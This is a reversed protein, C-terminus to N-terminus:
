KMYLELWRMPLLCPVRFLTENDRVTFFVFFCEFETELPIWSKRASKALSNSSQINWPTLEAYVHIIWYYTTHNSLLHCKGSLFLCDASLVLVCSASWYGVDANNTQVYMFPFSLFVTQLLSTTKDDNKKVSPGLVRIEAIAMERNSYQLEM